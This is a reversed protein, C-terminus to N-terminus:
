SVLKMSSLPLLLKQSIGLTIPKTFFSHHVIPVAPLDTNHSKSKGVRVNGKLFSKRAGGACGDM